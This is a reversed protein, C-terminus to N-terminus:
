EGQRAVEGLGFGFGQAVSQQVGGRADHAALSASAQFDGSGPGPGMVEVVMKARDGGQGAGIRGLSGLSGVRVTSGAGVRRSLWTSCGAVM